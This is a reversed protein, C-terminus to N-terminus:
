IRCKGTVICTNWNYHKNRWEKYRYFEATELPFAKTFKEESIMNCASSTQFCKMMNSLSAIFLAQNIQIPKDASICRLFDIGEEVDAKHLFLSIFQKKRKDSDPINVAISGNPIHESELIFLNNKRDFTVKYEYM